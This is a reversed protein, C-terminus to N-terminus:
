SLTFLINILIEPEPHFSDLLLDGLSRKGVHLIVFLQTFIDMCRMIRLVFGLPTLVGSRQMRIVNILMSLAGSFSVEWNGCHPFGMGMFPLVECNGTVV